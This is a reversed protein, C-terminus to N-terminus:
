GKFDAKLEAAFERMRALLREGIDKHRDFVNYDEAPDRDLHFLEPAGERPKGEADMRALRCKWSGERCAQLNRGLFYFFSQRPSSTRGQLFPLLDFGDYVRDAPLSGGAARVLTPFLDLTSAMDASVRGAPIVGPWRAVFPVRLGGEYTTGKAGRLMGKTGTHWPEVGKQLMRPPLNHWPGNDSTFLVLTTSDIGQEKLTKLIEGASWDLTEIVDGYLGARSSGLFKGSASVPLHPMAYPLYLFFPDKGASRILRVAEETYRQTLRSQDVMLEVPKTDRYLELPRNTKVWPPIMDNSYLLGFYSDFGRRTPLHDAPDHGLHWKGIMMTRYGRQKLAQALTIENLPLGGKSDPGLNNPQGARVPYRGTLLGARSPTCVPAACYFSTLRVGEAAMRDLNPTRITPHGFCALDSYGLDDAFLIIFNPPRTAAARAAAGAAASLFGRRSM